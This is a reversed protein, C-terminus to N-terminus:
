PNTFNNLNSIEFKFAKRGVYRARFAVLEDYDARRPGHMGSQSLHISSWPSQHCGFGNGYEPNHWIENSESNRFLFHWQSVAYNQSTRLDLNNPDTTASLHRVFGSIFSSRDYHRSWAFRLRTGEHEFVAEHIKGDGGKVAARMQPGIPIRGFEDYEYCDVRVLGRIIMNNGFELEEDSPLTHKLYVYLPENMTPVQGELHRRINDHLPQFLKSSIVRATSDVNPEPSVTILRSIHKQNLSNQNSQISLDVDVVGASGLPPINELKFVLNLHSPERGDLTRKGREVQADSVSLELTSFPSEESIEKSHSFDISQLDLVAACLIVGMSLPIGLFLTKKWQYQVVSVGLSGIIMLGGIANTLAVQAHNPLRSADFFGHAFGISIGTFLVSVILGIVFYSPQNTLSALAFVMLFVMARLGIFDFAIYPLKDWGGLATIAVCEGLFPMGILWVLVWLFKGGAMCIGSFPKTLWFADPVDVPDAFVLFPIMLGAPFLTILLHFLQIDKIWSNGMADFSHEYMSTGNIWAFVAM